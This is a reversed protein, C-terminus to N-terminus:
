ALVIREIDTRWGPSTSGAFNMGQIESRVWALARVDQAALADHGEGVLRLAEDELADV